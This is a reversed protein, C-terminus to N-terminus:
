ILAGKSIDIRKSLDEDIYIELNADDDIAGYNPIDGIKIKDESDSIVEYRKCHPCFDVPEFIAEIDEGMVFSNFVNIAYAIEYKEGYMLGIYEHIDMFAEFGRNYLFLQFDKGDIAYIPIIIKDDFDDDLQRDFTEMFYDIIGDEDLSAFIDKDYKVNSLIFACIDQNEIDHNIDLYEYKEDKAIFSVNGWIDNLYEQGETRFDVTKIDKVSLTANMIKGDVTVLM